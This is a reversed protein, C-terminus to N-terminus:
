SPSVIPTNSRIAQFLSSVASELRRSSRLQRARIIDLDVLKTLAAQDRTPKYGGEVITGLWRKADRPSVELDGEPAKADSRILRRDPLRQGALSAAGAILWTEYEQMAFVVAVSFTAGAGVDKAAVALSKAVEAACFAKGGVKDQDGDLILLVGGVDARKLSAGLLRKWHRFDEKFLRGVSGVRFTADDLLIDRWAGKDNPLRRVLTPVAEAEGDGEVFLLLRRM